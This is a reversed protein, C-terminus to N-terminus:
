KNQRRRELNNEGKLPRNRPRMILMQKYSFCSSKTQLIRPLHKWRFPRQKYTKGSKSVSRRRSRWNWDPSSIPQQISQFLSIHQKSLLNCCMIAPMGRLRNLLKRGFSVHSQNTTQKFWQRSWHKGCFNHSSSLHWPPHCSNKQTSRCKSKLPHPTNQDSRSLRM